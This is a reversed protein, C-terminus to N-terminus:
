HLAILILPTLEHLMSLLVDPVYLLCETIAITINTNDSMYPASLIEKVLESAHADTDNGMKKNYVSSQHTHKKACRKRNINM